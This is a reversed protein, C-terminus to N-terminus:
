RSSSSHQTANDLHWGKTTENFLDLRLSLNSTKISIENRVDAFL